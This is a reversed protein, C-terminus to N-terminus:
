ADGGNSVTELARLAEGELAFQAARLDTPAADEALFAAVNIRESDVGILTGAQNQDVTVTPTDLGLTEVLNPESRTREPRSM